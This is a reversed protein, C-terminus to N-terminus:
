YVYKIVSQKATVVISESKVLTFYLLNSTNGLMIFIDLIIKHMHIMKILLSHFIIFLNISIEHSINVQIIYFALNLNHM